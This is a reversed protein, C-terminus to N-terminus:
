QVVRMGHREKRRQEGERGAEMIADWAQPSLFGRNIVYWQGVQEGSAAPVSGSLEMLEASVQPTVPQAQHARIYRCLESWRVWLEFRTSLSWRPRGQWIIFPTGGAACEAWDTSPAYTALYSGIAAVAVNALSGSQEDPEWLRVLTDGFRASFATADVARTVLKLDQRLAAMFGRLDNFAAAPWWGTHLPEGPRYGAPAKSLWAYDLPLRVQLRREMKAGRGRELLRWIRMRADDPEGEGGLLMASLADLERVQSETRTGWPNLPPLAGAGTGDSDPGDRRGLLEVADPPQAPRGPIDVVAAPTPADPVEPPRAVPPPAAHGNTGASGNTGGAEPSGDPVILEVAHTLHHAVMQALRPAEQAPPNVITEDDAVPGAALRRAEADQAALAAAASQEREVREREARRYSSFAVDVTRTVYDTRRSPDVKTVKRGTRLRYCMIAEVADAETGGINAIHRAISMDTESDGDPHGSAWVERFTDSAFELSAALWPPEYSPAYAAVMAWVATLDVKAAGAVGDRTAGAFADLQRADVLHARLDDYAYRRAVDLDLLTCATEPLARYQGTGKGDPGRLEIRKRNTTGPVRLVRSLDHVSDVKFRGLRHAHVAISARWDRVLEAAADREADRAAADAGQDGFTWPEDLLWAAQLGHGSHWVMSPVLGMSDLVARAQAVDAPLTQAAHAQGAIDIEAWVCTLADVNSARMRRRPGLRERSLGMGLYTNFGPLADMEHVAAVIADLDTVPLWRTVKDDAGPGHGWVTAFLPGAVESLDDLLASCFAATQEAPTV